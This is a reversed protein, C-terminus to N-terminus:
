TPTKSDLKKRSFCCISKTVSFLVSYLGSNFTYLLEVLWGHETGHLCKLVPHALQPHHPSIICHVLRSLFAVLTQPLLGVASVFGVWFYRIHSTHPCYTSIYIFLVVVVVFVFCVSMCLCVSLCIPPHISPFICVSMYLTKPPLYMYLYKSQYISYTSPRISLYIFLYM